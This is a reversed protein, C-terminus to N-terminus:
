LLSLPLFSYPFTCPFSSLSAGIRVAAQSEPRNVIVASMSTTFVINGQGKGQAQFVKAAAKATHFAGDLNVSMLDRFQTPPYDLAEVEHCIGANAVVINVRGFDKVISNIAAEIADPDAVDAQYATCKVKICTLLYCAHHRFVLTM